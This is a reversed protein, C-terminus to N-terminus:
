AIFPRWPAQSSTECPKWTGMIRYRIFMHNRSYLLPSVEFYMTRCTLMLNYIRRYVKISSGDPQPNLDNIFDSQPVIMCYIRERVAPPLGLFSANTDMIACIAHSSRCHSDKQIQRQHQTTSKTGAHRLWIQLPSVDARGWNPRWPANCIGLM